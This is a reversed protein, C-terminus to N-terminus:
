GYYTILSWVVMRFGYFEASPIVDLFGHGFFHSFDMSLSLSPVFYFCCHGCKNSYM